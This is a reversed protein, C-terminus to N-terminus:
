ARKGKQEAYLKNMKLLARLSCVLAYVNYILYTIQIPKTDLMQAYLLVSAVNGVAQLYAYDIYSFSCLITTVIGILTITNDLILYSSGFWSFIALLLLWVALSALVLIGIKKLSLKKFETSSGYPKKSWNIFTIFQLPCSVLLAYLAMAYLGVYVNVLTYLLANLGGLLFAYRNAKSQLLMIVLSVYLPVILFLDAKCLAAAITILVFAAGVLVVTFITDAKKTMHPGEKRQMSLGLHSM